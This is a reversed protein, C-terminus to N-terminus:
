VMSDIDMGFQLAGYWHQFMHLTVHACQASVYIVHSACGQCMTSFDCTFDCMHALSAKVDQCVTYEGVSATLL